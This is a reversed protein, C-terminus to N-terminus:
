GARASAAGPFPRGITHGIVYLLLSVVLGVLIAPVGHPEKAFQWSVSASAGGLISLWSALARPSKVYLAAILSVIISPAWIAYLILLGDIISPAFQASIVAIAAIVLTSVKALFLTTRESTTAFVGVIDRVFAVASANLVSEQSAMVIAVLAALLLGFIGAPLVARGVSVFVDDPKTDAPIVGHSVIGLAAVIALWVIIFVGALLFGSKSASVSKAALARNAYPPILLEGLAFSVAVGIVQWTTMAALAAKTMDHARISLESLPVSSKWVALWLMTPIMIAKLSFQVGETAITARLGGTFTLLATTGTVAVICVVLPWNTISHLIIGGIKGMVATFGICLGVSLVGTLLHTFRGYRKRMVDGLTNCDREMALRPAFLLGSLLTQSAFTVTLFYILFGQDWAKSTIGVSFGPGMITAALSAFIMTTPISHGGVAFEKFTKNRRTLYGLVGMVVFYGAVAAVDLPHLNM